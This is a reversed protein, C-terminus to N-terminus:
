PGELGSCGTGAVRYTYLPPPEAVDALRHSAAELGMRLAPPWIGKATGRFLRFTATEPTGAWTLNVHADDRVARLTNGLDPPRADPYVAVEVEDFGATPCSAPLGRCRVELTYTTTATGFLTAVGKFNDNAGNAFSLWAVAAVLLITTLTM